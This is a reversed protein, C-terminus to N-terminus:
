HALSGMPDWAPLVVPEQQLVELVEKPVFKKDIVVELLYEDFWDDTMVYYGKNGSEEGWSNEVRWRSIKM